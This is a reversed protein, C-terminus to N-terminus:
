DKRPSLSTLLMSSLTTSSLRQHHQGKIIIISHVIDITSLVSCKSPVSGQPKGPPEATSDAQLAPAAPSVPELGPDTLVGSFPM